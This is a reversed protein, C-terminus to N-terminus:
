VKKVKDHNDIQDEHDNQSIMMNHMKDVTKAYYDYYKEQFQRTYIFDVLLNAFHGMVNKLEEDQYLSLIMDIENQAFCILIKDNELDYVLTKKWDFLTQKLAIALKQEWMFHDKFYEETDILISFKERWDNDACLINQIIQKYQFPLSAIKRNKDKLMITRSNQAITALLLHVFENIDLVKKKEM